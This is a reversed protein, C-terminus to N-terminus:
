KAASRYEGVAYSLNALALHYNLLSLLFEGQNKGYREVAFFIDRAQGVGM